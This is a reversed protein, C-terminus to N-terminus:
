MFEKVRHRGIWQATKNDSAQLKRALKEAKKQLRDNRKGIDRLAWNVAKKVYFRDDNAAAEILDLFAVFTQDKFENASWAMQAITAFSARKEFEPEREAWDYCKKITYPTFKVLMGTFADTIEWCDLDKVWLDLLAEDTKDAEAIRVALERAADYQTAWLEQALEHDRGIRKILPKLDAIYVQGGQEKRRLTKLEKLINKIM